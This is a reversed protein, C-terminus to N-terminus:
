RLARRLIKGGLGQPIEDVFMVKTPCKYRAILTACFDIVEEEELNHGVAAVVYAKVTEGSYPSDVGVVAAAEIGPHELLASEVEAPYVNFGSVIILDKARDVIRLNGEHDAVAMDGTRLWGDDTLAGATAEADEWYGPFVNPGRVWIEGADGLLADEGDDVLRLEIGPLPRGISGRVPAAPDSVTVVPSAETLGYGELIQLGFREEFAEAVEEPLKSAGSLVLRVSAFTDSPVGPMTSWAAWMPPAGTVVTCRHSRISELATVPDFREVLILSSGVALSLGLMANLGYIHFLPLVGLGVDDSRSDQGRVSRVQEINVLLNRHSLMAAKPYGATGATFILAALDSGEREVVPVFDSEILEELVAAGEIAVGEPAVVHELFPVAARDIGVFPRRGNPGVIAARPRVMQFERELEAAPSLPNLPVAVCGLSLVALYSVVFYRNNACIIAVRDGPELGLEALGGRLGAVQDRLAGYTTPKGRSVIAVADAPHEDIIRALNVRRV